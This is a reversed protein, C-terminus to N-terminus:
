DLNPKPEPRVYTNNPTSDSTVIKGTTKYRQCNLEIDFSKPRNFYGKKIGTTSDAYVKEFFKGVIPLALRSGQGLAYTRFHISRDDGGVWAGAVLNHTIGVFWGDSYNSTTGTKGGVENGGFIKFRYLGLATGDKEETGGKLMHVMLYASEENMAEKTQPVFEQIINGYKDEIRTIFIPETWTGNNVFTSYANVLEFISVDSSGLCLAPVAELPSVIGLKKATQVVKDPGVIKMMNATISNVSRAMAQRLTLNKGTYVGESNQPTWTKNEKGDFFQFTTPVDPFEDCPTYGNEMATAYVFPKFTSGPQRKGQKVHDYKFYKHNIGGVWAKIHGTTPDMSVFGAQLYWKYYKIEQIPSFVTDKEGKWTFVKVKRKKNMYFDISDQNGEYAQKYLNYLDSRKTVSQIFNPIEKGSEDTWPNRKQWHDFFKAQISKMHEEVAQEAYIQVKSHITTYIKLGDAYLDYNNKKCWDRLYDAVVARFYTASGKNHNEVQFRLDIPLAKLSDRTKPSLFQYKELQELVTNRRNLANKPNLVPSYLTPAKLVGVLVACEQYSLDAPQKDFFTQAAVKIGYANSGFDVTNLYMTIIEKKTYSREIYIATIWEKTKVIVTKLGPIKSLLGDYREDRTDFLNKALQQSITSSGRRQGALLSPVIAVLGKLDIGSHEDFRIDETALLTNVFLPSIEEYEVSSRNERFYKGLLVKDESYLESALESKPNELKEFSPMEGFLNLFNVKVLFIYLLLGLFFGVFGLWLFLIPKKM